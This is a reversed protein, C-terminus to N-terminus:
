KQARANGLMQASSRWGVQCRWAQWAVVQVFSTAGQRSQDRTEEQGVQAGPGRAGKDKSM